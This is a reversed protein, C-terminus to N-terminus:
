HILGPLGGRRTFTPNKRMMRFAFRTDQSIVALHERPAMRVIDFITAGWMRLLGALGRERELDAHQERFVTEM